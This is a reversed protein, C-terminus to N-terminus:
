LKNEADYKQLKARLRGGFVGNSALQDIESKSLGLEVLVEVNHQGPELIGREPSYVPLPLAPTRLLHPHPAPAVKPNDVPTVALAAAEAPSLIPFACADSDSLLSLSNTCIPNCLFPPTGEFKQAWYDRDYLMFAKEFLKKTLPWLDTKHQDQPTLKLGQGQAAMFGSPLIPVFRDLFAKYFQPEICGLSMWRGDACTYINYFPAGGDLLHRMRTTPLKSHIDPSAAFPQLPSHIKYPWQM